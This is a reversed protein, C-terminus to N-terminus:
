TFPEVPVVCRAEMLRRVEEERFLEVADPECPPGLLLAQFARKLRQARQRRLDLAAPHDLLPLDDLESALDFPM